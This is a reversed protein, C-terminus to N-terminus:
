ASGSSYSETSERYEITQPLRVTRPPADSGDLRTALLNMAEAGVLEAPQHVTTITPSFLDSHSFGDFVAFALDDPFRRGLRRMAIMTEVALPTSCAIVATARSTALAAEVDDATCTAGNRAQLTVQEEAALGHVLVTVLFGELREALTPVGTDGAVVLFRRHGQEILHSVLSKMADRNEAAVGDFRAHDTLRDMLVIPEKARDVLTLLEDSSSGARAVILGDVRRELLTRVSTIEREADEGSTALLLTLGKAAAATGVGNVMEAFAPEGGDPIVLGISDTRSRRMARALADQRYDTKEIADLVRRRTAPEVRRTGNLVHSVTSTSVGALRAVEVITAM